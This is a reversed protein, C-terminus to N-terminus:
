RVGELAYPGNGQLRQPILDNRLLDEYSERKLILEAQGDKVLVVAPKPLRNYNSAMTYGYAGTCPVALIDGPETPALLIDWILMDGSECCKGAVSVLETPKANAKNAVIAEYVAGYLAPRINDAMGGDVSVYKRIGPIDKAAGLTYLTTGAAGVISRGPEVIIKPAKIGTGAAHASVAETIKDAYIEINKPTDGQSYYIGFGGGLNLEEIIFGTAKFIQAIFDMMINAAVIFSEEEFIQSGIHCHIGKLELVDSDIAAKAAEMAKGSSLSFGFKSDEQGTQCYEHTHAEVGPAIRLMIPVPGWGTEECIAELQSLEFFNDVVIRGVSSHIAMLLEERSKNNGHFYIRKPPFGAQLATFLEGGSVVDLSLGEEKVIAAMALTLFAKSAYAADGGHKDIFANKFSRCQRRIYEEDMVWLPTGFQKALQVTDCGGIELHGASNIRMTGQLKM